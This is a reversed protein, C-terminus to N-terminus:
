KLNAKKILFDIIKQASNENKLKKINEIMKKYVQPNEKIYKVKKGAENINEIGVACGLNIFYKKNIKENLIMKERAIFPKSLAIVESLGNGGCRCFLLDSAKMYEDVNDVFGLNVVNDIKNKEIYKQIKNYNKKNRGNIIILQIDKNKNLINKVLKLTNGIGNGGGINMVTFINKLNLKERLKSLNQSNQEFEKRIPIGTTIIQENKFGKDILAQRTDEYPEFIYNVGVSHEWYPALCFDFLVTATIIKKDLMNNNNMYTLVSSAYSHTCIIIDPNYLDIQEKFYPLCNKVYYPLKTTKKNANRLKNWFFNYIHPIRRCAWLFMRNEKAIRKENYGHTQIIKNDVKADTFAQSLAKAMMNHGEGCTMTFILAKM